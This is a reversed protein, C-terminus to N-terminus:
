CFNGDRWSNRSIMTLKLNVIGFHFYNYYAQHNTIGGAEYILTILPVHTLGDNYPALMNQKM